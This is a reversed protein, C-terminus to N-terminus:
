REVVTISATLAVSDGGTSAPVRAVSASNYWGVILTASGRYTADVVKLTHADAVIQGPAWATTPPNPPADHEAVLRGDPALLQTFVTYATAIPAANIARWYVTLTLPRDPAIAPATLTYGLLEAFGGFQGSQAQQMPPADFKLQSEDLTLTAVDLWQDGQAIQLQMEGRVPPYILARRDLVTEGLAWAAFPYEHMILDAPLEVWVRNAQALRVRGDLRSGTKRWRLVIEVQGLPAPSPPALSYTELNEIPAAPSQWQYGSLARYPDAARTSRPVTINGLVQPESAHQANYFKVSVTHALPPTGPPIPLVTYNRGARLDADVGSVRQGAPDILAISSRQWDSEAPVSALPWDLVLTMAGADVSTISAAGRELNPDVLANELDYEYVEYGRFSQWATLRGAQELL